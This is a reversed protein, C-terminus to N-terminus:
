AIVHLGPEANIAQEHLSQMDQAVENGNGRMNKMHNRMAVMAERDRAMNHQDQGFWNQNDQNNTLGTQVELKEVKLGQAELANKIIDLNDAIVKAADINEARIVANVEKGQVQLMVSLKGLNEPTLQLTLQNTGNSLAKFVATEVQKMVKPASIREWAKTTTQKGAEALGTKLGTESASTKVQNQKASSSEDEQVKSVFNTWHEDDQDQNSDNVDKRIQGEPLSDKRDTVTQKFDEKVKEKARMLADEENEAVRAKLDVAEGIQRAASTESTKEGLAKAFVKGLARVLQQDKEDMDAMEQHIMSFAEKVDKSLMNSSFAEKIKATFEKSFSMAASFAEIEQKDFLMFQGEPMADLKGKLAAMVKDFQGSEMQKILSASEKDDFGFKSFFSGLKDKQTDTLEVTRMEAMKAALTETFEGWTLGDESNVRKEIDAIDEESLGYDKLDDKVENFDENTMRTDLDHEQEPEPEIDERVPVKTGAANVAEEKFADTSPVTDLMKEQSSVPSLAMQNEVLDGHENFLEAFLSQQDRKNVSSFKVTKIQESVKELAIGPVNQM